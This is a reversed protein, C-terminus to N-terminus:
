KEQGGDVMLSPQINCAIHTVMTLIIKYMCVAFIFIMFLIVYMMYKVMKVNFNLDYQNNRLEAILKRDFLQQKEISYCPRMQADVGSGGGGGVGGGGKLEELTADVACRLRRQRISKNNLSNKWLESLEQSTMTPSEIPLFLILFKDKSCGNLQFAPHISVVVTASEGPSLVGASPKVRFKEPTTTKMKYSLHQKSVNQLELVSSYEDKDKVFNVVSSPSIRLDGDSDKDGATDSM